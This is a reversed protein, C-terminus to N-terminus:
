RGRDRGFIVVGCRHRPSAGSSTTGAAARPAPDINLVEARGMEPPRHLNKDRFGEAPVGVKGIRAAGRVEAGELLDNSDQRLTDDNGVRQGRGPTTGVVPWSTANVTEVQPVGAAKHKRNLGTTFKPKSAVLCAPTADVPPLVKVPERMADLKAVVVHLRLLQGSNTCAGSTVRRPTDFVPLKVDVLTARNAIAWIDVVDKSEDSPHSISEPVGVRFQEDM